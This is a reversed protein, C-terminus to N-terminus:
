QINSRIEAMKTSNYGVIMQKKINLIKTKNYNLDMFAINLGFNMILILGILPLTLM